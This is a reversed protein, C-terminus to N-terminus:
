YAVVRYFKQPVNATSNTFAATAQTAVWNAETFWFAAALNTTSQLAYTRGAVLSGISMVLAAQGAQIKASLGAPVALPLSVDGLVTIGAYGCYGNESLPSTFDFKVSAVNTALMGVTSTLVVRTASQINAAISPNYNVTALPIFNTPSFVTSYYVKYAQQDRGNDAWGGYVTINTLDYGPGPNNLQYVLLSDAGNGNGCTVYNASTTFGVTGSVQTLGLANSITLCNVNRGPLEESYNGNTTSPTIGAILSGNTMVTWSPFFTGTGSGTQNTTTIIVGPAVVAGFPSSWSYHGSGVAYIAYNNSTSSYTVGPSSFAPVGSETIAAVNTTPVYVQATTNPPIVVDLDFSNGSNTWATFILGRTSSYSTNAWTLGVGPVPQILITKYGPSAPSIGGVASYLYEGVAGFSYHNFSNMGITQFGSGPTWGDWREWMTTAGLNVQYLWSPYSEQLLLQYALDDRGAIHM